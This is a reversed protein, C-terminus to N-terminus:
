RADRTGARRADLGGVEGPEVEAIILQTFVLRGVFTASMVSHEIAELTATSVGSTSNMRGHLRHGCM